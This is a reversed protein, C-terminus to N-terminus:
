STEQFQGLTIRQPYLDHPLVAGVESHPCTPPSPRRATTPGRNPSRTRPVPWASCPTAATAPPPTWKKGTESELAQEAPWWAPEGLTVRPRPLDGKFTEGLPELTGAWAVRDIETPTIIRM